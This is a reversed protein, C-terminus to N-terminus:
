GAIGISMDSGFLLGLLLRFSWEGFQRPLLFVVRWGRWSFDSFWRARISWISCCVLCTSQKTSPPKCYTVFSLKNPRFLFKSQLNHLTMHWLSLHLLLNARKVHSSICLASEKETGFRAGSENSFSAHSCQESGGRKRTRSIYMCRARAKGLHIM